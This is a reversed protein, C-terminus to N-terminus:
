RGYGRAALFDRITSADTVVELADRGAGLRALWTLGRPSAVLVADTTGCCADARAPRERPHGHTVLTDVAATGGLAALTAARADDSADDSARLLRTLWSEGELIVVDNSGGEFGAVARVPRVAGKEFDAAIRRVHFGTEPEAHAVTMRVVVGDDVTQVRVVGNAIEWGRWPHRLHRLANLTTDDAAHQHERM